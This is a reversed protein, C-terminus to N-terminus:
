LDKELEKIKLYTNRKYMCNLEKINKRIRMLKLLEEENIKDKNKIYFYIDDNNFKDEFFYTIGKYEIEIM